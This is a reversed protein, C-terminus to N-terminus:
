EVMDIAKGNYHSMKSYLSHYLYREVRHIELFKTLKRANTYIFLLTNIDKKINLFTVNYRSLLQYPRTCSVLLFFKKWNLLLEFLTNRQVWTICWQLTNNIDRSRLTIKIYKTHGHLSLFITVKCMVDMSTM